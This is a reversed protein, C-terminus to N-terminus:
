LHCRYEGSYDM